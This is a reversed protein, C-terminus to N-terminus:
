REVGRRIELWTEPSLGIFADVIQPEFQSGRCREIEKYAYDSSQALRYPRDSTLADYADVLSFIRAGLVIEEGRLGRPYGGGDFREHHHLVLIAAQKLFDIPKLLDHGLQPHLRMEEWEQETLKGPKHLVHDSVGIKGIDHLLAGQEITVLQAPTVNIEQALRSAYRSVRRSHWQTENDRFDLASILGDLLNTTREVVLGDLHENLQQLQENQRQVAEQLHRNERQLSALRAGEAVASFLETPNWPKPVVRHIGGRNVADRVTDFDTNATILLRAIDNSIKAVQSLLESGLMEPMSYDSIVVDFPEGREGEAIHSLAQHPSTSCVVEYGERELLRSLAILILEDDDIIFVRSTM